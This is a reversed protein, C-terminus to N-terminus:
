SPWTVVLRPPSEAAREIALDRRLRVALGHVLMADQRFFALTVMTTHKGKARLVYRFEPASM